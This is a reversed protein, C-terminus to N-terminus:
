DTALLAVKTSEACSGKAYQARLAGLRLISIHFNSARLREGFPTRSRRGRVWISPGLFDTQLVLTCV